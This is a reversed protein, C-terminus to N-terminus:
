GAPLLSRLTILAEQLTKAALISTV